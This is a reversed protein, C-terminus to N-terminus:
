LRTDGKRTSHYLWLSGFPPMLCVADHQLSLLRSATCQLYNALFTIYKILFILFTVKFCCVFIVSHANIASGSLARRCYRALLPRHAPSAQRTCRRRYWWTL